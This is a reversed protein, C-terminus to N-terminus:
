ITPQSFHSFFGLIVLMLMVPMIMSLVVRLYSTNHINKYAIISIAMCAVAGVMDGIVPIICFVIPAYSYATARFTAQYGRDGAGFIMLMVHTIGILPFSMGALLLPYIFLSMLGSLSGEALSNAIMSDNMIQGVDSGITTDVGATAWIFNCIEQFEALLIFFILPKIFGTLPMDKFFTNPSLFVKKITLFLAPFFGYKEMFEFPVENDAPEEDKNKTEKNTPSEDPSMSNLSKWIDSDTESKTEEQIDEQNHKIEQDLDEDKDQYMNVSEAPAQQPPFNNEEHAVPQQVEESDIDPNEDLSRFKFKIQCRPCTALQANAPIKDDPIESTFNCEPCIVKM